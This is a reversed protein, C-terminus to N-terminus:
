CITFINRYYLTTFFSNSVIVTGYVLLCKRLSLCSFDVTLTATRLAVFFEASAFLIVGYVIICSFFCLCFWSIKCRDIFPINRSRSTQVTRRFFIAHSTYYIVWCFFLIRIERLTHFWCFCIGVLNGYFILM